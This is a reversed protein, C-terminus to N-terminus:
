AVETGEYTKNELHMMLVATGAARFNKRLSSDLDAAGTVLISPSDYLSAIMSDFFLKLQFASEFGDVELGGAM